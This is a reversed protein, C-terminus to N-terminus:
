YDKAFSSLRGLCISKLVIILAVYEFFNIPFPNCQVPYTNQFVLTIKGIYHLNGNSNYHVHVPLFLSLSLTKKHRAQIVVRYAQSGSANSCEIRELCSLNSNISLSYLLRM